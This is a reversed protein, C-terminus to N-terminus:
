KKHKEAQEVAKEATEKSKDVLVEIQAGILKKENEDIHGDSKAEKIIKILKQVGPILISFIFGAITVIISIIVQIENVSIAIGATSIATGTIGFVIQETTDMNVVAKKM